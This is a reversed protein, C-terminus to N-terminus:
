GECLIDDVVLQQSIFLTGQLVVWGDFITSARSVGPDLCAGREMALGMLHLFAVFIGAPM